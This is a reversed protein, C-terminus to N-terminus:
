KWPGRGAGARRLALHLRRRYRLPTDATNVALEVVSAAGPCIALRGPRLNRVLRLVCGNRDVFAADIGYRMGLTHIAWCPSLWLGTRPGPARARCLLGRLRGPAGQVRVLRIRGPALGRRIRKATM